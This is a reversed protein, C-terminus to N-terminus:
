IDRKYFSLYSRLWNTDRRNRYYELLGKDLLEDGHQIKVERGFKVSM